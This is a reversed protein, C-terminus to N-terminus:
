EDGGNSYTAISLMFFLVASCGCASVSNVKSLEYDGFLVSLAFTTWIIGFVLFIFKFGKM